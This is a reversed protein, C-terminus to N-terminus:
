DTHGQREKVTALFFYCFALSATMKCTEGHKFQHFYSIIHAFMQSM